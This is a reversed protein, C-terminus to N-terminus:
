RLWNLILLAKEISDPTKYDETNIYMQFSSQSIICVNPLRFDYSTYDFTVPWYECDVMPDEYSGKEKKSPKNLVLRDYTELFSNSTGNSNDNFDIVIGQRTQRMRFPVQSSYRKNDAVNYGDCEQFTCERTRVVTLQYNHIFQELCDNRRKWEDLQQQSIM